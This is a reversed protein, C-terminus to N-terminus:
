TANLWYRAWRASGETAVLKKEVLRDLASRLPKSRAADSKDSLVGKEQLAAGLRGFSWRDSPDLSMLWCAADEIEQPSYTKPPAAFAGDSDLPADGFPLAGEAEPGVTLRLDGDRNSLRVHLPDPSSWQKVRPAILRAKAHKWGDADEGSWVLKNAVSYKDDSADKGKAPALATMNLLVDAM